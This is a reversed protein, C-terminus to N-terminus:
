GLDECHCVEYNCTTCRGLPLNKSTTYSALDNELVKNEELDLQELQRNLRAIQQRTARKAAKLNVLQDYREAKEAQSLERSTTPQKPAQYLSRPYTPQPM